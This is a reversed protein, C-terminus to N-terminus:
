HPSFGGSEATGPRALQALLDDIVVRLVPRARLEPDAQARERLDLMFAQADVLTFPGPGDPENAEM